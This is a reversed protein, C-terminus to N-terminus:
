RRGAPPVSTAPPSSTREVKICAAVQMTALERRHAAARMPKVILLATAGVAINAVAAVIFVAHWSGTSSQLGARWRVLFSATGKATYLLGANTRRIKSGYTDTCIAPFLSYIEGWTFYVMGATVIFEV